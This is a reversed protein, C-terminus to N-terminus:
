SNRRTRSLDVKQFFDNIKQSASSYRLGFNENQFYIITQARNGELIKKDINIIADLSPSTSQIEKDDIDIKLLRANTLIYVITGSRNERLAANIVLYDKPEDGNIALSIFDHVQSRRTEDIKPSTLQFIENIIKDLITEEPM